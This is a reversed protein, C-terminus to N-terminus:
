MADVHQDGTSPQCGTLFIKLAAKGVPKEKGYFRYVPEEPPLEQVAEFLEPLLVPERVEILRLSVPVGVCPLFQDIGAVPRFPVHLDFVERRYPIRIIGSALVRIVGDSVKSSIGVPCGDGVVPYRAKIVMTDAEPVLIVVTRGICPLVHFQVRIFKYAPEQHMDKRRAEGAYPGCAKQRATDPPLVKPQDMVQEAAFILLTGQFRHFSRFQDQVKEMPIDSDTFFAM